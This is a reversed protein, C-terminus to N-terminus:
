KIIYVYIRKGIKRCRNIVYNTGRSKGNWLAIVEDAYYIIKDNRKLPAVRAYKEYEPLFETLKIYERALMDVGRASGSVIETIGDLLYEGINNIKINRSGIVAVKM